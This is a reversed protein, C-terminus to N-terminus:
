RAILDVYRRFARSDVFNLTLDSLRLFHVEETKGSNNIMQRAGLELHFKCESIHM